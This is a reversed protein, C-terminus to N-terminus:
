KSENLTFVRTRGAVPKSEGWSGIKRDVLSQLSAEALKVDRVSRLGRQVDRVTVSGGKRRIWEVLDAETTSINRSRSVKAKPAINKRLADMDTFIAGEYAPQVEGRLVSDFAAESTEGDAFYVQFGNVPIQIRWRAM